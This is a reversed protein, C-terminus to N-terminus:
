GLINSMILLISATGLSRYYLAPARVMACYLTRLVLLVVSDSKSHGMGNIVDTMYHDDMPFPQTNTVFGNSGFGGGVCENAIFNQGDEV